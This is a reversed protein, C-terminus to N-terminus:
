ALLASPSIGQKAPVRAWGYPLSKSGGGFSSHIVHLPHASSACRYLLPDHHQSRLSCYKNGGRTSHDEGTDVTCLREAPGDSPISRWTEAKLRISGWGKYGERPPPDFDLSAPRLPTLAIKFIILHYDSSVSIYNGAHLLCNRERNCLIFFVSEGTERVRERSLALFGSDLWQLVPSEYPQTMISPAFRATSAGATLM